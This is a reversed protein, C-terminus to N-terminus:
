ATELAAAVVAGLSQDKGVFRDAGRSLAAGAVDLDSALRM